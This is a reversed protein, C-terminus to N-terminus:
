IKIFLDLEYGGVIGYDILSRSNDLRQGDLILAQKDIPINQEINIKRKLAEVGDKLDCTVNFTTNDHKRITIKSSETQQVM